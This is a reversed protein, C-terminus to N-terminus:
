GTVQARFPPQLQRPCLARGGIRLRRPRSAPVRAESHHQPSPLAHTTPPAITPRCLPPPSPGRSRRRLGTLERSLLGKRLKGHLALNPPHLLGRWGPAEGQIGAKAPIARLVLPVGAIQNFELTKKKPFRILKSATRRLYSENQGVRVTKPTRRVAKRAIRAEKPSGAPQTRCPTAPPPRTLCPPLTYGDRRLRWPRIAPNSPRRVNPPPSPSPLHHNAPLPGRSGRPERTRPFSPPPHPFSPLPVSGKRDLNTSTHTHRPTPAPADLPTM